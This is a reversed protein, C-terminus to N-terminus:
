TLIGHREKGEESVHEVAGSQQQLSVTQWESREQKAEVAKERLIRAKRANRHRKSLNASHLRNSLDASHQRNKATYIDVSRERCQVSGIGQEYFAM